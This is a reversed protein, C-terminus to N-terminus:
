NNTRRYESKIKYYISDAEKSQARMLAAPYKKEVKALKDLVVKEVDLNLLVAMDYSYILIDALESQLKSMLEPNQKVEELTPHEWQFLELLEAAEISISKAINGPPLKNWARDKLYKKVRQSIIKSM